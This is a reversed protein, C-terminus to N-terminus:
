TMGSSRNLKGQRWMELTMRATFAHLGTERSLKELVTAAQGPELALAHSAAWLRVWKDDHELLELFPGRWDAESARLADWHQRLKRYANNAVESNAAETASGYKGKAARHGHRAGGDERDGPAWATTGQLADKEGSTRVSAQRPRARDAPPALLWRGKGPLDDATGEM